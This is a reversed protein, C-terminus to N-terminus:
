SSLRQKQDGQANLPGTIPVEEGRSLLCGANSLLLRTCGQEASSVTSRACLTECDRQEDFVKSIQPRITRVSWDSRLTRSCVTGCRM